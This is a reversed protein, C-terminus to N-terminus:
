YVGITTSNAMNSRVTRDCTQTLLLFFLSEILEFFNSGSEWPVLNRGPVSPYKAINTYQQLQQLFNHM